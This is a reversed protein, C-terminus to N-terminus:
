SESVAFEREKLKIILPKFKELKVGHDASSHYSAFIFTAIPKEDIETTYELQIQNGPAIERSMVFIKGEFQDIYKKKLAFWDSAASSELAKVLQGDYASVIDVVVPSGMNANSDADITVQYVKGTTKKTTDSTKTACALNFFTMSIFIWILCHIRTSNTM